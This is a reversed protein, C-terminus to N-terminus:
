CRWTVSAFEPRCHRCNPMASRTARRHLFRRSGADRHRRVGATRRGPRDGSAAAAGGGADLGGPPQGALDDFVEGVLRPYDVTGDPGRACLLVSVDAHAIVHALEHVKFRGNIPVGIAGLKGAALLALVYDLGNPM